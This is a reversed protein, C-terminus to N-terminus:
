FYKPIYSKTTTIYPQNTSTWTVLVEVTYVPICSQASKLKLWSHYLNFSYAPFDVRAIDIYRLDHNVSHVGGPQRRSRGLLWSGTAGRFGVVPVWPSQRDGKRRIRVGIDGSRERYAQIYKMILRAKTNFPLPKFNCIKSCTKDLLYTSEFM